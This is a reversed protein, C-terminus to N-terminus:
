RTSIFQIHLNKIHKKLKSRVMEVILHAASIFLQKELNQDEMLQKEFTIKLRTGTTEYHFKIGHSNIHKIFNNLWDTTMAIMEDNWANENETTTPQTTETLHPAHAQKKSPTPSLERKKITVVNNDTQPTSSSHTTMSNKKRNKGYDNISPTAGTADTNTVKPQKSEKQKHTVASSSTENKQSYLIAVKAKKTTMGWFNREPEELIKVSFDKPRGAHEWGNEIAKSISSAEEVISKVAIGHTLIFM